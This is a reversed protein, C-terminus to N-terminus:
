CNVGFMQAIAGLDGAVSQGLAKFKWEGSHKYLEGFIVSQEVCADETLDFRAIEEGNANDVVRIYANEVQGFNQGREASKYISAAFVIREVDDPLTTLNIKIQEDDGDGEGTRNDGQHVVSGCASEKQNYFIFDAESRVKKNAGLLFVSADLDFSDGSFAQPDWGLGVMVDVLGIKVNQGKVLSIAM